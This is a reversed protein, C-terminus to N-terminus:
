GVFSVESLMKVPSRNIPHHPSSFFARPVDSTTMVSFLLDGWPQLCLICNLEPLENPLQHPVLLKVLPGVRTYNCLELSRAMWVGSVDHTRLFIRPFHLEMNQLSPEVVCTSTGWFNLLTESDRLSLCICQSLLRVPAGSFARCPQYCSQKSLTFSHGIVTGLTVPWISHDTAFYFLLYFLFLHVAGKKSEEKEKM